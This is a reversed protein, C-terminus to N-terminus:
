AVLPLHHHQLHSGFLSSALLRHGDQMPHLPLVLVHFSSAAEAAVAVVM